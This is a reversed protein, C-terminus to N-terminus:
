ELPWEDTGTLLWVPSVRLVKCLAVLETDYVRRRGIEIAQVIQPDPNWEGNTIAALAANMQGRKMKLALRRQKVRQGILNKKKNEARLTPDGQPMFDAVGFFPAENQWNALVSIVDHIVRNEFLRPISHGCYRTM